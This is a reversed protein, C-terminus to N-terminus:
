IRGREWLTTEVLFVPIKINAM